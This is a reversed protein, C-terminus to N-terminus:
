CVLCQSLLVLNPFAKETTPSSVLGLLGLRKQCPLAHSLQTLSYWVLTLVFLLYKLNHQSFSKQLIM